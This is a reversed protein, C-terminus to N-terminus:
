EPPERHHAELIRARVEPSQVEVARALSRLERRLGYVQDMLSLVVPVTDHNVNLDQLLQGIMRVRAIDLQSFVPGSQSSDPRIWGRHVWLRLQKVTLGDIRAIVEQEGYMM